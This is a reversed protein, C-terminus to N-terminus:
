GLSDTAVHTHFSDLPFRRASRSRLAVVPPPRFSASEPRSYNRIATALVARSGPFHWRWAEFKAWLLKGSKARRVANPGLSRPWFRLSALADILLYRSLAPKPTSLGVWFWSKAPGTPTGKLLSRQPILSKESRITAPPSLASFPTSASSCLVVPVYDNTAHNNPSYSSTM